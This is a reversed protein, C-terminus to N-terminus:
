RRRSAPPLARAVGDLSEVLLVEVPDVGLHQEGGDEDGAEDLRDAVLVDVQEM